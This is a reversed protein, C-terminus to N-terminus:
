FASHEEIKWRLAYWELKKIADARSCVPKWLIRLDPQLASSDFSLVAWRRVLRTETKQM